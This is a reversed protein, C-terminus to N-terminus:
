ISGYNTRDMYNMENYLIKDLIKKDSSKLKHLNLEQEKYLRMIERADDVGWKFMKAKIM